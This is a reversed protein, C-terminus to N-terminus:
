RHLPCLCTKLFFYHIAVSCFLFYHSADRPPVQFYGSYSLVKWLFSSVFTSVWFPCVVSSSSSSLQTLRLCSINNIDDTYINYSSRHSTNPPLLLLPHATSLLGPVLTFPCECCLCSLQNELYQLYFLLPYCFYLTVHLFSRAIFLFPSPQRLGFGM